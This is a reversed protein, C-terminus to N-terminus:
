GTGRGVNRAMQEEAEDVKRLADNLRRTRSHVREEETPHEPEEQEYNSLDVKEEM